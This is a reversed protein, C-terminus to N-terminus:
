GLRRARHRKRTRPLAGRSDGRRGPRFARGAGPRPRCGLAARRQLPRRPLGARHDHLPPPGCRRRGQGHGASLFGPLQPRRARDAGKNPAERAKAKAIEADSCQPVGALKALLGGPLTAEVRLFRQSGDQRALRFLLTAYKGAEPPTTGASFAPANPMQSASSPCPGGGPAASPAFSDTPHATPGEPASWPVLESTTQHPACSPPSVFAGRDGGFVSVQFDEVPLEPSHPFRVSLRGTNPDLQGEGALKARIGTKEDEISLYAAILSGFPNAFPEALYVSGSLARPIARGTEPDRLPEHTAEDYQALLPSAATVAAIRAAEPCGQPAGSFLPEGAEGRGEYGIQAESCAELGTAQSPNVSMGEPFSVTADKLIATAPAALPEAEPGQQPQHLAFDLGTPSDTELSTPRAEIQPEFSLAGCDEPAVGKGQLDASEYPSAHTTEPHEWSKAFAEFRLPQSPCEGPLTLFPTERDPIACPQGKSNKGTYLCVGRIEAHAESSPDGWIQTQVNFVPHAGLALIDDTTTYAHYDSGNQLHAIAHVFIGAEAANFALEAPAGPPPVMNYLPLNYVATIATGEGGSEAGAFLSTLLVTGVQSEDPCGPEEATLEVETCLEASAAPNGLLGRPLDIRIDRPHETGILEQGVRKTPFGLGVSLQYPHSGAARSAEGEAQTAPARLAETFGFPVAQTGIPTSASASVEGGGGGQVSAQIEVQGSATAEVHAYITVKVIWSSGLAEEAGGAAACRVHRTALEVECEPDKSGLPDENKAVAETPIVGEPLEANVEYPGETAKAGLNTAVLLYEVDTGPALNAPMPTAALRWAASPPAAAASAPLAASGLLAAAALLPTLARRRM